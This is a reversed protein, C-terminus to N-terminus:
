TLAFTMRDENSREWIEVGTEGGGTRGGAREVARVGLAFEQCGGPFGMM